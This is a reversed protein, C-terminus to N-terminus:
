VANVVELALVFSADLAKLFVLCQSGTDGPWKSMDELSALIAPYLDRFILVAEQKEVWRTACQKKLNTRGSEPCRVDIWSQLNLLRKNSDKYFVATSNMLTLAARIEPVDAAKMLCLNLSHAACHVYLASPCKEAIHKQVGNKDGSMAAAGDYGQGVMYALDVGIPHLNNRSRFTPRKM